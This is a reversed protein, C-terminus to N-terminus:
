LDEGLLGQFDDEPVDELVVDEEQFTELSEEKELTEEELAESVVELDSTSSLVPKEALTEIPKEKDRVKKVDTFIGKRSVELAGDKYSTRIIADGEMTLVAERKGGDFDWSCSDLLIYDGIQLSDWEKLSFDVRGIEMALNIQLNDAIKVNYCSAKELNFFRNWSDQLTMPFILRMSIKRENITSIIDFYYGDEDLEVDGNDIQIAVKPIYNETDIFDLIELIIFTYVSEQIDEDLNLLKVSENKFLFERALVLLDERSLAVYMIGELPAMSFKFYRQKGKHPQLLEDKKAWGRNELNIKCDVLGFKAVMKEILSAFPFPPLAGFTPRSGKRIFHQEVFKLNDYYNESM